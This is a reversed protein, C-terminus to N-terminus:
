LCYNEGMCGGAGGFMSKKFDDVFAAQIARKTKANTCDGAYYQTEMGLRVGTPDHKELCFHLFAISPFENKRLSVINPMKVTIHSCFVLMIMTEMKM